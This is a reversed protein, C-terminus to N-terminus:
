HVVFCNDLHLEVADEEEALNVFVMVVSVTIAVLDAALAVVVVRLVGLDDALTLEVFDKELAMQLYLVALGQLKEALDAVEIAFSQVAM